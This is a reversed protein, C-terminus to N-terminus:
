PKQTNIKQWIFPLLENGTYVVKWSSNEFKVILIDRLFEVGVIVENTPADIYGGRGPIDDRWGNTQDTPDGNQSFRLRQPNQTATALTGGEWTNFACLRDKFPVMILCQHLENAGNTTPAFTTWSTGNYYRIPDSTAGSQNNNTAWFLDNGSGDQWYNTSWFFDSNNGQWSTGAVLEQYQGAIFQYAYKTDFAIYQEDNIAKLERTRLGMVPLSPYYNLTVVVNTPAGLPPDFTLSLAGTVYNITGVNLGGASLAGASNDTFTLAGVVISVSGLQIEANPETARLAVAADAFIDAVAYSGGNAQNTLTVSSLARRLRGLLANGSKRKVRGRFVYCDQLDVYAKDPIIFSELSRDVGSTPDYDAIYFPQYGM